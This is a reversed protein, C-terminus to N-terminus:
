LAIEIVWNFGYSKEDIHRFYHLHLRLTKVGSKISPNRLAKLPWSSMCLRKSGIPVCGCGGRSIASVACPVLHGLMDDNAPGGAGYIRRASNHEGAASVRQCIVLSFRSNRMKASKNM